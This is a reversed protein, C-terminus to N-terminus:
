GNFHQSHSFTLFESVDHALFAGLSVFRDYCKSFFLHVLNANFEAIMFYHLPVYITVKSAPIVLLALLLFSTTLLIFLAFLAIWWFFLTNVALFV